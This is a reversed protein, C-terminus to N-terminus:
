TNEVLENLGTYSDFQRHLQYDLEGITVEATSYITADALHGGWCADKNAVQLHIHLLTEGNMLAVSGQGSVIELPGTLDNSFFKAPLEKVSNLRAKEASGIIGIIIGSTIANERCYRAIEALLEQGPKVRFVHVKKFLTNGGQDAPPNSYTYYLRKAITILAPEREVEGGTDGEGEFSLPFFSFSPLSTKIKLGFQSTYWCTLYPYNAPM